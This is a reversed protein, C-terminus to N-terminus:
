ECSHANLIPWCWAAEIDKFAYPVKLKKPAQPSQLLPIYKSLIGMINGSRERNGSVSVVTSDLSLGCQEIAAVCFYLIDNEHEASYRNALKLGGDFILVDIHEPRLILHAAPKSSNNLSAIVTSVDAILEQGKLQDSIEVPIIGSVLLKLNTLAISTIVGGHLSSGQSGFYKPVDQERFLTEPTITFASPEVLNLVRTKVRGKLVGEIQDAWDQNIIASPFEVAWLEILELLDESFHAETIGSRTIHRVIRNGHVSSGTDPAVIFSKYHDATSRNGTVM